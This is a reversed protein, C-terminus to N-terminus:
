RVKNQRLYNILLNRAAVVPRELGRACAQHFAMANASRAELELVAAVRGVQVRCSQAQSQPAMPRRDLGADRVVAVTYNKAAHIPENGVDGCLKTYVRPDTYRRSLGLTQAVSALKAKCPGAPHPIGGAYAPGAALAAGGGVVVAVLAAAIPSAPGRRM